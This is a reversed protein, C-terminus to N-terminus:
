GLEGRVVILSLVFFFFCFRGFQMRIWDAQMRMRYIWKPDCANKRATAAQAIFRRQHARKTLACLVFLVFGRPCRGILLLDNDWNWRGTCRASTTVEPTLKPGRGANTSARARANRLGRIVVRADHACIAHFQRRVCLSHALLWWSLRAPNKALMPKVIANSTPRRNVPSIVFWQM